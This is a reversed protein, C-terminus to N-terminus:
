KDTEKDKIFNALLLMDGLTATIITNFTPTQQENEDGFISPGLILIIKTMLEKHASVIHTAKYLVKLVTFM